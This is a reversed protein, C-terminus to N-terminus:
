LSTKPRLRLRHRLISLLWRPTWLWAAFIIIGYLLWIPLSLLLKAILVLLDGKYVMKSSRSAFKTFKLAGVSDLAKLGSKGFTAALLITERGLISARQSIDIAVNGGVRYLTASQNGFIDAFHAARRLDTANQTNELINLGGRTKALINIDSFMTRLQGMSGTQRAQSAATMVSNKLWNPLKGLKRAAKLAILSSKVVTTGAVAPAAAGGTAGTGLTSAVQASTAVLGLTALALLVEDVEEGQVLNLGQNALDRMDGVVFFDSTVSAVQGITEDSSGHLLGEGLKDLQYLWDSRQEEISQYLSQAAPDNGVYDYGIFFGLYDAAEAYREEEVLAHTEPLPDIRALAM